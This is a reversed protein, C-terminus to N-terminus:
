KIVGTPLRSSGEDQLIRRDEQTLPATTTCERRPINSGAVQQNRKCVPASAVLTDPAKPTEACGSAMVIAAGILLRASVSIMNMAAIRRTPKHSANGTLNLMSYQVIFVSDPNKACRNTPAVYSPVFFFGAFSESQPPKKMYSAQRYGVKVSTAA